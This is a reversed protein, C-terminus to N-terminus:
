RLKTIICRKLRETAMEVEFTSREPALPEATHIETQRVDNAGHVSQLQAFHKRWRTRISHCNAVIDGKEDKVVNTRPQYVKKLDSNDRYLYKINNIMNNNELEIIKAKLCKGKERGM